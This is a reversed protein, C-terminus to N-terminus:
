AQPTATLRGVWTRRRTPLVVTTRGPPALRGADDDQLGVTNERYAWVTRDVSTRSCFLVAAVATPCRGAACRLLFPLALLSGDRARRLAALIRAQEEPPLDLATSRPM